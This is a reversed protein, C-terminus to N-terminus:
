YKGSIHRKYKRRTRVKRMKRKRYIELLMGAIVCGALGFLDYITM